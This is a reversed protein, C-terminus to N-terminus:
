IKRNLASICRAMDEPRTDPTFFTELKWAEDMLYIISTHNMLYGSQSSPDDVREFSAAFGGAAAKLEEQSGTLATIDSPFGNSSIYRTLTEPTDRDPDVSILATMPRIEDDPLLSMAAGISYLTQPCVDPCYTFGFFVLTKRGKFTSESIRRGTNDILSFPGGISQSSRTLCAPDVSAAPGPSCASTTLIATIATLFM